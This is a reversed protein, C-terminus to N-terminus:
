KLRRHLKNIYWILSIIIVVTIGFLCYIFLFSENKNNVKVSQDNLKEDTGKIEFIKKLQWEKGEEDKLDMVLEYKGKKLPDNNWTLPLEFRTRPAFSVKKQFEKIPKEEGKKTVVAHVSMQSKIVPEANSLTAFIALYGNELGPTVKDLTFKPETEKNTCTLKVGLTYAFKNRLSFGENKKEQDNSDEYCYFGGLITGAFGEEPVNLQFVVEKEEASRLSVTQSGSIMKEFSPDGLLEGGHKSYDIAGNKNTHANNAAIIVKIKNSSTNRLKLVLDQKEGPKVKLDYYSADSQQNEPLVAEADFSVKDSDAHITVSCFFLLCCIASIFFLSSYRSQGRRFKRQRM